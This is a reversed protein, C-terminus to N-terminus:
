QGEEVTIHTVIIRDGDLWTLDGKDSWSWFIDETVMTPTFYDTERFNGNTTDVLWFKHFDSMEISGAPTGKALLYRKPAWEIGTVFQAPLDIFHWKITKLELMALKSKSLLMDGTGLILAIKDGDPSWAADIPWWPTFDIKTVTGEDRNALYLPKKSLGGWFSAYWRGTPDVRLKGWPLDITNVPSPTPKPQTVDVMQLRNGTTEAKLMLLTKQKPEVALQTEGYSVTEMKGDSFGLRVEPTEGKWANWYLFGVGDVTELWVPPHPLNPRRGYEVIEGTEVDLTVIRYREGVEEVDTKKPDGIELLLRRNDPLWDYIRIHDNHTFVVKPEGFQIQDLTATEWDLTSTSIPTPVARVVESTMAPQQAPEIETRSQLLDILFWGAGFLLLLTMLGGAIRQIQKM